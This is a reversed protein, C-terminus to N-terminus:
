RSTAQVSLNSRGRQVLTGSPEPVPVSEEIQNQVLVDALSSLRPTGVGTFTDSFGSFVPRTRGLLNNELIYPLSNVAQDTDFGPITSYAAPLLRYTAVPQATGPRLISYRLDQVM